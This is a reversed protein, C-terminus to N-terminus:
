RFQNKINNMVINKIYMLGENKEDLNLLDLRPDKEFKQMILGHEYVGNEGVKHFPLMCTAVYGNEGLFKLRAGAKEDCLNIIRTISGANSKYRNEMTIDNKANYSPYVNVKVDLQQMENLKSVEEIFKKNKEDSFLVNSQLSLPVPMKQKVFVAIHHPLGEKIEKHYSDIISVLLGTPTSGYIRALIQSGTNYTSCMNYIIPTNIEEVLEKLKEGIQKAIWGTRHNPHVLMRTMMIAHHDFTFSNPYESDQNLFNYRIVTGLGVINGNDESVYTWNLKKPLIENFLEMRQEVAWDRYSAEHLKRIGELDEITAIRTKM